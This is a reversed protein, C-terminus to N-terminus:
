EETKKFSIGDTHEFAQGLTGQLHQAAKEEVLAMCAAQVEGWTGVEAGCAECTIISEDTMEDPGILDDAGCKNCRPKMEINSTGMLAM